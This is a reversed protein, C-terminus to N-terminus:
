FVLLYSIDVSTVIPAMSQGTGNNRRKEQNGERHIKM